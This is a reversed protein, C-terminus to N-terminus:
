LPNFDSRGGRCPRTLLGKQSTSHPAFDAITRLKKCLGLEIGNIEPAKRSFHTFAVVFMEVDVVLKKAFGFFGV